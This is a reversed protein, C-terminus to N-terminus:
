SEGRAYFSFRKLLRKNKVAVITIVVCILVIAIVVCGGVGVVLGIVLYKNVGGEKDGECNPEFIVSLSSQGYVTKTKCDQNSGQSSVIQVNDFESNKCTFHIPTINLSTQQNSSLTLNQLLITLNGAFTVCDTFNISQGGDLQIQHDPLLVVDGTLTINDGSFSFVPTSTIISSPFTLSIIGRCYAFTSDLAIIGRWYDDEDFGNQTHDSNESFWANNGETDHCQIENADPNAENLLKWSQPINYGAFYPVSWSLAQLPSPLTPLAWNRYGDSDNIASNNGSTCTWDVVVSSNLSNNSVYINTMFAAVNTVPSTCVDFINM